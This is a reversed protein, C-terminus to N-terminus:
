ASGIEQQQSQGQEPESIKPPCITNILSALALYSKKYVALLAKSVGRRKMKKNEVEELIKNNEKWLKKIRMKREEEEEEEENRNNERWWWWWWWQWM